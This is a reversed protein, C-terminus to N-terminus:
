QFAKKLSTEIETSYPFASMALGSLASGTQANALFGQQQVGLASIDQSLGTMASGFGLTAGLQSSLSGLGGAVGSGGAAGLAAAAARTRSRKIQFERFARRRSRDERLKQQQEQKAAIQAGAKTAKKTQQVSYATGGVAAALLVTEIGM